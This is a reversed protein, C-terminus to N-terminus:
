AGGMAELHHLKQTYHQQQAALHDLKATILNAACRIAEAKTRYMWRGPKVLREVRQTEVEGVLRRVRIIGRGQALVLVRKPILEFQDVEWWVQPPDFVPMGRHPFKPNAGRNKPKKAVM